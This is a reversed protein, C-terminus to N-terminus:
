YRVQSELHSYDSFKIFMVMTYIIEEPILKHNSETAGITADVRIYGSVQKFLIIKDIHM